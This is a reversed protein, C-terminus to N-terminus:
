TKAPSSIQDRGPLSAPSVLPLSEQLKDGVPLPLHASCVQLGLEDFLKKGAEVTTGPFGAPEVGVYGIEAVKRVTAEYDAAAAERLTYLQLAIPAPM